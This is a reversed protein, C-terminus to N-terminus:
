QYKYNIGPVVLVATRTRRYLLMIGLIYIGLAVIYSFISPRNKSSNSYKLQGCCQKQIIERLGTRTTFLLLMVCPVGPVVATSTKGETAVIDFFFFPAGTDYYYM